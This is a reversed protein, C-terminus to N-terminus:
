ITGWSHEFNCYSKGMKEKKILTKRHRFSFDMVQAPYENYFIGHWFQGIVPQSIDWCCRAYAKMKIQIEVDNKTDIGCVEMVPIDNEYHKKLRVDHLVYEQGDLSCYFNMTRSVMKEGWDMGSSHSYGQRLMPIGVHPLFYQLYSGNDWQVIAWYWGPTLSAIRVKQFYARGAVKRTLSSFSLEGSASLGRYKLMSYGINGIFRKGTPILRSMEETWRFMKLNIKVDKNQGTLVFDTGRGICEFRGGDNEMKIRGYDDSWETETRGSELIFPDHMEKGDYYWSAVVSEFSTKNDATTIPLSPNWRFRNIRTKKCNRNGWLIMLQQPKEPYEENEFFYLWWWWHWTRGPLSNQPFIRWIDQYYEQM